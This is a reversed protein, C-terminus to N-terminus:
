LFTPILKKSERGSIQGLSDHSRTYRSNNILWMLSMKRRTGAGVVNVTLSYETLVVITYSDPYLINWTYRCQSHSLPVSSGYADSSIDVYVM